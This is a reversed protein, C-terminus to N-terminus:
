VNGKLYKIEYTQGEHNLDNLKFFPHFNYVDKGTNTSRAWTCVSLRIDDMWFPQGLQIDISQYKNM